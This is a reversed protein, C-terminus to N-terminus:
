SVASPPTTTNTVTTPTGVAGNMEPPTAIHDNNM